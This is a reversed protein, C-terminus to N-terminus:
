GAEPRVPAGARAASERIAAYLHAMRLGLEAPSTNERRGQRIEVFQQWVGLHPALTLPRLSGVEHEDGTAKAATTTIELREGWIGTRLVGRTGFVLIESGLGRTNGCGVMSVLLGSATRAQIVSHLEVPRGDDEVWACLSDYGEGALIATTNLMHAGTDFLFGGGSSAPDQRWTGHTRQEWNQWCTASIVRLAGLDGREIRRRAARIQPSLSGNFAVVLLRGSEDRVRILSQAEAVDLVMPKELLVDLGARLCAEAQARHHVHPTVIFAADLADGEEALLRALDPENAPVPLGAASFLAAGAEYNAANPECFFRVETTDQQKLIRPLHAGRTMDGVGVIVTRIRGEQSTAGM